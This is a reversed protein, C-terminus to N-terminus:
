RSKLSFIEKYFYIATKFAYIMSVTVIALCFLLFLTEFAGRPTSFMLVFARAAFQSFWVLVLAFATVVAYLVAKILNLASM